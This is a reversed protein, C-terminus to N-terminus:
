KIGHNLAGKLFASFGDILNPIDKEYCRGSFGEHPLPIFTKDAPVIPKYLPDAIVVSAEQLYPIIDTEDEALADAATLVAAETDVPCIIRAPRGIDTTIAAALSKSYVSEGVITIDPGAAIEKDQYVIQDTGTRLAQQLDAIVRQQLAPGIPVGVVFPTGFRRKLERATALGSYSVVLNVKAEAARAIDDLTCNMSWTSVVRFDQTELLRIMSADSGNMSFDLPTLGLINVPVPGGESSAAAPERVIRRALAEFAMSAGAVYSNMSNTSFGFTPIGTEQEIVSAVADFDFGTMMPIPTGAIAIFRPSLDRAAATIDCILKEDNGMVADIETLGSIYIMSDMNYWRPEDHTTYTSNCGSPDHMVVMGGLEFLASSVGFADASYTSIISAVQKM